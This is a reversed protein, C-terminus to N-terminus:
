HKKGPASDTIHAPQAKGYQNSYATVHKAAKDKKPKKKERNGRQEGKPM